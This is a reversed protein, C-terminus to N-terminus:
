MVEIWKVGRVERSPCARVRQQRCCRRQGRRRRRKNPELRAHSIVPMGVRTALQHDHDFTVAPHLSATGRRLPDADAVCDYGSGVLFVPVSGPSAAREGM